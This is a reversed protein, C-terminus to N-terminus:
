GLEGGEAHRTAIGRSFRLENFRDRARCLRRFRVFYGFCAAQRRGAQEQGPRVALLSLPEPYGELKQSLMQNNHNPNGQGTMATMCQGVVF